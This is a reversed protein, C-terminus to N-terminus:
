PQPASYSLSNSKSPTMVALKSAPKEPEKQQHIPQKQEKNPEPEFDVFHGHKVIDSCTKEPTGIPTGEQSFCLCGSARQVCASPVPVRTPKTLEDYKPSTHPLGEVRPTNQYVYEKADDLAEKYKYNQSESPPAPPIQQSQVASSNEVVPKGDAGIKKNRQKDTFDVMYWIAGIILLPLLAFIYLRMPLNRKVTHVEASKYFDYIKKDYTWHHKVSDARGAPKDCNDRCSSFEHITAAQTGFKRVVHMHKGVLRRISSDALLPHQTILVIDIGKHRHTELESVHPPPEKGISRPRFVRQCEDIVVISRPPCDMWKEAEIETWPLKLDIIGSYFVPRNEKEAREKISALAYLTKGNGPLGTILEIM